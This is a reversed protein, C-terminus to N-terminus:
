SIKANFTEFNQATADCRLRSKRVDDKKEVGTSERLRRQRSSQASKDRDGFSNVMGLDFRARTTGVDFVFFSRFSSTLLNCALM